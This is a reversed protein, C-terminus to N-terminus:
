LWETEMYVWGGCVYVVEVGCICVEGWMGEDKGEFVSGRVLLHMQSPAVSLLVTVIPQVLEAWRSIAVCSCSFNILQVCFLECLEGNFFPSSSFDLEV